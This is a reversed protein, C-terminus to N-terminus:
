PAITLGARRYERDFVDLGDDDIYDTQTKKQDVYWYAYHCEFCVLVDYTHGEVSASIAHRPMFCKAGIPDSTVSDALADLVKDRVEPASVTARGLVRWRYLLGPEKTKPGIPDLSVLELKEASRLTRIFQAPPTSARYLLLAAVVLAFAAALVIATSRKV